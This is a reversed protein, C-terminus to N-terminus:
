HSSRLRFHQVLFPEVREIALKWDPHKHFWAHPKGKYIKEVEAPVGLKSLREVLALTQEHSVCRDQDGHLFLMPPTDETVRQIPSAEDYSKPVDESSGGFFAAMAEILSQKRVLDWMDFEGNFLIALQVDSSVEGHGGDGEYEGKGNTVAMMASLHGGASGGCVAIRKPDIQYRDAVSRVWRVACKADQLAAPFQAEGSLRYEICAGVIDLRDAQRRFQGKNGFKWSGGHIFVIAPRPSTPAVKRMILDL